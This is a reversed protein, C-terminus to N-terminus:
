IPVDDATAKMEPAQRWWFDGATTLGSFTALVDLAAVFADRDERLAFLRGFALALSKIQESTARCVHACVM